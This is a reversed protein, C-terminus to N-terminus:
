FEVADSIDVDDPDPEEGDCHGIVEALERRLADEPWHRFDAVQYQTPEWGDPGHTYVPASSEAWNAAVGYVEDPAWPAIVYGSTGPPRADIAERIYKTMM